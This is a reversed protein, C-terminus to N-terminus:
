NEELKEIKSELEKIYKRLEIIHDAMIEKSFLECMVNRTVFDNFEDFDEPTITDTLEM